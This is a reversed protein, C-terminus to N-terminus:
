MHVASSIVSWHYVNQWLTTFITFISTWWFFPMLAVAFLASFNPHFWTHPPRYSPSLDRFPDYFTAPVLSVSCGKGIPSKAGMRFIFHPSIDIHDFSRPGDCLGM